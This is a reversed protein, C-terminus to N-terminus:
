YENLVELIMEKLEDYSHALGVTEDGCHGNVAWEKCLVYGENIEDFYIYHYDDVRVEDDLYTMNTIKNMIEDINFDVCENQTNM